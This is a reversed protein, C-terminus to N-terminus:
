EHCTIGDHRAAFHLVHQACAAPNLTQIFHSATPLHIIRLNKIGAALLEEQESSTISGSTPYLALVPARILPLLHQASTHRLLGYLGCLVEVDSKGIQEFYWERMGRDTGEPFFQPKDYVLCAWKKAGLARLAEERSAYGAAFADQSKQNQYVPAAVLALTRVRSAHEVALAMGLIGGFSEGCYHVSDLSLKDLVDVVDGVYNALTSEMGPNFDVPSEGHGRLDVRLVKYFRSLYPLWSYWFLSSRGYGHQLLLTAANKWPDTFDDIRYHLTPKGARGIFPM